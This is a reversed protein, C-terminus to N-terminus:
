KPDSNTEFSCIAVLFFVLLYARSEEWRQPLATPLPAALNPLRASERALDETELHTYYESTLAPDKHRMLRQAMQLSVGARALATAFQGRLAHFDFVGRDTAYEIGAAALDRRLMRAAETHWSGVWLVDPAKSAMWSRLEDAVWVPLPILADRRDKATAGKIRVCPPTEDLRFSARTLQAIENARFGTYAALLYLAARDTGDLLPANARRSGSRRVYGSAKTAAILARFEEDALARRKRREHARLNYLRVGSLPDAALAKKSRCLWRAFAKCSAYYHNVTSATLEGGRLRQAYHSALREGDIDGLRVWHLAACADLLNAHTGAVYKPDRGRATLADRYQDVWEPVTKRPDTIASAPLYGAKIQEAQRELDVALAQTLKKDKYGAIKRVTGGADRYEIYWKKAEKTIRNGTKADVVTYTQRFIRAVIESRDAQL